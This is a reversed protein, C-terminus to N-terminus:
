NKKEKYGLKQRYSQRFQKLAEISSDWFFILIFYWLKNLCNYSEFCLKDLKPIFYFHKGYTINQVWEKAHIFKIKLIM